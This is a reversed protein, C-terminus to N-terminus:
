MTVIIVFIGAASIATDSRHIFFDSCLLLTTIPTGLTLVDSVGKCINYKAVTKM